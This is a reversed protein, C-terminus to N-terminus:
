SQVLVAAFGGDRLRDPLTFVQRAVRWRACKECFWALQDENEERELSCTTYIIRTAPGALGCAQDLLDRQIAVLDLLAKHTARYRAEPRRALVGTNTCPVDLLILDVPRGLGSLVDGLDALPTPRIISIGLREAARPIADLKWGELDTAAVVGDNRMLEAAQTAKTGVGSCLDLMIEGPQPPALTLAIQATSDQPQCLGETFEPLNSLPPAEPLIVADSGDLLLPHHGAEALRRHLEGATTRIANPRLVLPPRRQGAECVQRCLEPKFRRHWREVLFMPHSTAAVLYDLPRRNPDPLVNEAFLRGRHEDIPLWRRPDPEAPRELIEGRCRALSRLIANTTAAVGAGRRKAQTVAQDVAAHDPVRELWCLQYVALALILRVSERLGAWRGRYFRSALHEATLRHRLVGIVLEAALAVDARPLPAAGQMDDLLEHSLRRGDSCELLVRLARERASLPPSRDEDM